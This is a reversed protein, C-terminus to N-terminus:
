EIEEKLLEHAATSEVLILGAEGAQVLQVPYCKWASQNTLANEDCAPQVVGAEGRILDM